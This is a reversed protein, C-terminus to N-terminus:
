LTCNIVFLACGHINLQTSVSDKVVGFDKTSWEERCKCSGAGYDKGPLAKALDSIRMSVEAEQEDLNFIAVYVKGRRGTAVWARIGGAGSNAKLKRMSACLGSYSNMLTGNRTLEWMQNADWGCRSFVGRKLEKSTLRRNPSAGLCAETTKTHLLHVKGEYGHRYKVNEDSLLLPTRKYLCFPEQHLESPKKKWCVQEFDRDGDRASWGRAETNECSSLGFTLSEKKSCKNRNRSQPSSIYPFEKNNSSYSNIELLTPNTILGFTTEDLNRMDGGFMLPSKAMAWLTVQTRQEDLNLKCKRHPGDNSGPDTLWGLPLMDLDPWSKGKLGKAGVMDAASFDRSIDFHSAVDRWTDWDDGTIRYMNVLGSVKRAVAPTATSGPSLSYLIPRNLGTLVKSVYSIENLDLDEGFVCDHKVFDVGWEAYQQYLSRIFARGAGTETKVSMFGNKMWACAREKMGIDQAHWQKGNEEYAKGTTVDLIPTNADFAQTSIGRMVHIGFKLGMNHVKEAVQAFGKGDKSSPWRVPDPVMRGWQDIVDFGHSDVYAGNVKRRMDMIKSVVLSLNPMKFSSKKLFQGAFPIMLTGVEQHHVLMSKMEWVKPNSLQLSFFCSISLEFLVSEDDLIVLKQLLPHNCQMSNPM